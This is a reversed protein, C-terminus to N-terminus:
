ESSFGNHVFAIADIPFEGVSDAPIEFVLKFKRPREYYRDTTWSGVPVWSGETAAPATLSVTEEGTDAALAANDISLRVSATIGGKSAPMWAYVQYNGIPWPEKVSHTITVDIKPNTILQYRDDWSTQERQSILYDGGIIDAQLDDVVYRTGSAPLSNLLSLDTIRRPVILLRDVSVITYEDREDWSTTVTLKDVSPGLYYIGLSRWIDGSQQPEYQSTMFDVRQVGTLPALIQEGLSVTFDLSGGSSYVTDMVYIEFLGERLSRDMFWRIWGASYTAYWKEEYTSKGLDSVIKESSTWVIDSLPPNVEASTDVHLMILGDPADPVAPDVDLGDAIWYESLPGPTATPAITPTNTALPTVTPTFVLTPEPTIPTPTDTPWFTLSNRIRPAFLWGLYFFIFISLIGVFVRSFREM